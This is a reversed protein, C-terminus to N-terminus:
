TVLPLLDSALAYWFSSSPWTKKPSWVLMLESSSPVSVSKSLRPLSVFDSSSPSPSDETLFTIPLIESSIDGRFHVKYGVQFSGLDFKLLAAIRQRRLRNRSTLDSFLIVLHGQVHSLVLADIRWAYFPYVLSHQADTILHPLHFADWGAQRHAWRWLRVWVIIFEGLNM